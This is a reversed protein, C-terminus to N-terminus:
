KPVVFPSDPLARPRGTAIFLIETISGKPVVFWPLRSAHCVDSLLQRRDTPLDVAREEL